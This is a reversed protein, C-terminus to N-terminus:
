LFILKGYLELEGVCLIYDGNTNIGTQLIRFAKFATDQGTIIKSFWQSANLPNNQQTDIDIWNQNNNSGQIKWSILNRDNVNRARISYASLILSKDAKLDVAMYSNIENKTAILSNVQRDVLYQPNNHSEDYASSFFVTILNDTHPNSWAQTLKNSGIYYFVGNSDGNSAYTLTVEKSTPTPTIASGFLSKLDAIKVHKTSNTTADWILLLDDDIPNEHPPFENIKM